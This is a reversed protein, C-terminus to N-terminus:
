VLSSPLVSFEMGLSSLCTSLRGFFPFSVRPQTPHRDRDRDRDRNQPASDRPPSIVEQPVSGSTTQFVMVSLMCWGCPCSWNHSVGSVVYM